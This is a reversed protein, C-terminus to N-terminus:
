PDMTIMRPQTGNTDFVHIMEDNLWGWQLTRVFYKDKLDSNELKEFTPLQSKKRKLFNFM